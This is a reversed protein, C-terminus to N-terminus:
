ISLGVPCSGDVARLTISNFPAGVATPAGLENVGEGRVGILTVISVPRYQNIAHARLETSYLM